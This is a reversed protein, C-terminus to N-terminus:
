RVDEAEVFIASRRRSLVRSTMFVIWFRPKAQRSSVMLATSAHRPLGGRRRSSSRAGSTQQMRQIEGVQQRDRGHPGAQALVGRGHHRLVARRQQERGGAAGRREADIQM